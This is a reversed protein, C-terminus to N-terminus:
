LTTDHSFVVDYTDTGNLTFRVANIRRKAFNSPLRFRLANGDALFNRAGTMAIFRDGGLQKLITEAVETSM